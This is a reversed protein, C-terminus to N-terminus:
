KKKKVEIYYFAKASEQFVQVYALCFASIIGGVALLSINSKLAALIGIKTGSLIVPLISLGAPILALVLLVLGMITLLLWFLFTQMKNDMFVMYSDRVSDVARKSGIIISPMYVLFMWSIVLAFIFGIFPISGLIFAVLVTLLTAGVVSMYKPRIATLSKAFSIEKKNYFNRANDVLGAQLYLMIFFVVILGLFLALAVPVFTMVSEITATKLVLSEFFGIGRDLFALLGALIVLNVVFFPLMRKLSWACGFAKGFINGFDAKKSPM